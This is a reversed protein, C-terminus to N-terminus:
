RRVGDRHFRESVLLATLVAGLQGLATGWVGCVVCLVLRAVRAVTRSFLGGPGRM